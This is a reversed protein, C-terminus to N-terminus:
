RGHQHGSPSLRDWFRLTCHSRLRSSASIWYKSVNLFARGSKAFFTWLGRFASFEELFTHCGLFDFASTFVDASACM